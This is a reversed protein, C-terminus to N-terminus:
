NENLFHIYTNVSINKIIIDLLKPLNNKFDGSFQLPTVKLEDTVILENIITEIIFQPDIEQDEEAADIIFECIFRIIM